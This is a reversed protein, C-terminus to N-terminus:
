GRYGQFTHQVYTYVYRHVYMYTCVTHVKRVYTRIHTIVCICLLVCSNHYTNITYANRRYAQVQMCIYMHMTEASNSVVAWICSELALSSVALTCSCALTMQYYVYTHIYTYVYIIFVQFNSQTDTNDYMLCTSYRRIYNHVQFHLTHTHAHTRAHTRTRTHTHTHTHTHQTHTHTHTRAHTRAHTHTHTHTYTHLNTNMIYLVQTRMYQSSESMHDRNCIRDSLSDDRLPCISASISDSFAVNVSCTLSRFLSCFFRLLVQLFSM